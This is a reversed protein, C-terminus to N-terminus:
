DHNAFNDRLYKLNFDKVLEERKIETDMRFKAYADRVDVIDAMRQCNIVEYLNQCRFEKANFIVTESM